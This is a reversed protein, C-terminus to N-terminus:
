VYVFHNMGAMKIFLEEEAVNLMDAIGGIMNVPVNCLGLVKKHNSYKLVGEKVM